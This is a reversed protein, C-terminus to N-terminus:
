LFQDRWYNFVYGTYIVNPAVSQVTPEQELSERLEKVEKSTPCWTMFLYENPINSFGWYFLTNPYYKGLILNSINKDVDPKLQVHFASIIDNSADPYWEISLEILFNKIMRDLRRRATKASVGIEEAVYAIPKRSNDKLSRIIKYDLNCLDTEIELAKLNPPMPSTTIGVNPEPMHATQKIFNVLPELEAIHKLYAGIYLVNGGGVAFWYISGHNELKPKLNRISNARSTGILLIHIANQVLISPRATFKRIIGRDILDQIRNHVATVSLNLKEALERYSLRSNALLMMCLIVDTKDM